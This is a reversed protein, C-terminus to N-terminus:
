PLASKKKLGDTLVSEAQSDKACRKQRTLHCEGFQNRLGENCKKEPIKEMEFIKFSGASVECM